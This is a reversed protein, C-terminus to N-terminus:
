LGSHMHLFTRLRNMTTPASFNMARTHTHTHTSFHKAQVHTISAATGAVGSYLASVVNTHLQIAKVGLLNRCMRDFLPNSVSMLARTPSHCISLYLYKILPIRLTSTNVCRCSCSNYCWAQLQVVATCDGSSFCGALVSSVSM